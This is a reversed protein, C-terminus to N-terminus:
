NLTEIVEKIQTLKECIKINGDNEEMM